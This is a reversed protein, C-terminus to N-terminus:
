IKERPMNLTKENLPQVIAELNTRLRSISFPIFKDSTANINSNDVSYKLADAICRSVYDGTKTANINQTGDNTRTFQTIEHDQHNFRLPSTVLQLQNESEQMVYCRENNNYFEKILRPSDLPYSLKLLAEMDKQPINVIDEPKLKAKDSPTLKELAMLKWIMKNWFFEGSHFFHEDSPSVISLHNIYPQVMTIGYSVVFVQKTIKSIEDDKYNFKKMIDQMESIINEVTKGGLSHAFITVNRMNKCAEEVPLKKNGSCLLPTFLDRTFRRCYYEFLGDTYVKGNYYVSLLEAKTKTSDLMSQIIKANGNAGFSGTTANGGVVLVTPKNILYVDPNLPLWNNFHSNIRQGLGFGEFQFDM